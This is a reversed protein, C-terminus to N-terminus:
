AIDKMHRDLRQLIWAVVPVAMGNGICKYRPGDRALTEMETRDMRPFHRSLYVAYDDEIKKRMRPDRIMSAFPDIESQFVCEWGLPDAALEACGIGSCLTGFRIEMGRVM